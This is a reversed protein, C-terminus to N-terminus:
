VYINIGLKGLLSLVELKLTDTDPIDKFDENFKKKLEEIEKEDHQSIVFDVAEKGYKELECVMEKIEEWDKKLTPEEENIDENTIEKIFEQKIVEM